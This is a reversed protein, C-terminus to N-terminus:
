DTSKNTESKNITSYESNNEINVVEIRVNRGNVNSQNYENEQTMEDCEADLKNIYDNTYNNYNDTTHHHSNPNVKNYENTNTDFIQDYMNQKNSFYSANCDERINQNNQLMINRHLIIRNYQCNQNEHNEDFNVTSDKQSNQYAPRTHEQNSHQNRRMNAADMIKLSNSSINRFSNINDHTSDTKNEYLDDFSNKVNCSPSHKVTLCNLDRTNNVNAIVTTPSPSNIGTSSRVANFLNVIVSGGKNEDPIQYTYIILKSYHKGIIHNKKGNSRYKALQHYVQKMREMNIRSSVAHNM